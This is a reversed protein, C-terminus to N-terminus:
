LTLTLLIHNVDEEHEKRTLRLYSTYPKTFYCRNYIFGEKNNQVNAMKNENKTVTSMKILNIFYFKKERVLSSFTVFIMYHHLKEKEGGEM